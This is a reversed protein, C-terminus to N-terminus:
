LLEESVEVEDGLKSTVYCRMAAILPTPGSANGRPTMWYRRPTSHAKWGNEITIEKGSETTADIYDPYVTIRGREIIPGGQSWDTSYRCLEYGKPNVDHNHTVRCILKPNNPHSYYLPRGDRCDNGVDCKAVLWDLAPGIADATKIKIM